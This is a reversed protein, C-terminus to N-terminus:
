KKIFKKVIDNARVFYVGAQLGSINIKINGDVVHQTLVTRGCVDLIEIVEPLDNEKFILNLVDGAPNPYLQINELKQEEIGTSVGNLAVTATNTQNTITMTKTYTGGVPPAFVVYVMGGNYPITTQLGYNSQDNSVLFPEEVQVLIDDVSVFDGVIVNITKAPTEGGSTSFYLVTPSTSLTPNATRFSAAITHEAIVNEFTYILARQQSIGDVLLEDVTYGQDPTLTFTQDNHLPVVVNGSPSIQGHNGASATITFDTIPTGSVMIDDLILGAGNVGMAEFAIQYNSSPNPLNISVQTWQGGTSSSYNQLLTWDDSPSSRYYVNLTYYAAGAQAYWFSLVPNNLFTFDFNPLVLKTTSSAVAYFMANTNGSHANAITGSNNGTRIQWETYNNVYEHYCYYPIDESEFPEVWPFTDVTVTGKILHFQLSDGMDNINVIRFGTMNTNNCYFPAPNTYQSFEKMNYGGFCSQPLNGMDPATTPTAGPFGNKRFAYVEPYSNVYDTGANGNYDSNIRYIVAGTNYVTSEFPTQKNRYEIVLFQNPHNIRDPYIKYACNPSTAVPYITYVGNEAAEPIDEIWHGYKYKMYAGMNQPPNSTQEMLDWKGVFDAGGDYAYLDPASLSHFMEHCLTGLDFYYDNKALILNFDYVRKGHMYVSRDYISWRHPWLLDNWGAVNTNIIFVVNDVKGDDDYDLDLSLPVMNKIYRIASDLLTFERERKGDADTYGIANTASYPMYYNRPHSDHYSLIVDNPGAQPYLYTQISFQNYSVHQYFNKMSVASSSSTDNFMGDVQSYTKPFVTDGALSIFVVLNPMQGHNMTPRTPMGPDNDRIQRAREMRRAYIVDESIRAGPTLAAIAAPDVQGVIYESPEVRGNVEIGYTYYGTESNMIITYGAADHYYNYFEDGSVFCNIVVGNPQTITCPVNKLPAAMISSIMMFVLLIISLLRKM